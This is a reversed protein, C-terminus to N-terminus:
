EETAEMSQLVKIMRRYVERTIASDDKDHTVFLPDRLATAHGNVIAWVEKRNFELSVVKM